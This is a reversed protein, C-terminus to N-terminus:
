KKQETLRVHSSGQKVIPEGYEFLKRDAALPLDGKIKREIAAKLNAQFDAKQNDFQVWQKNSSYDIAQRPKTVTVKYNRNSVKFVQGSYERLSEINENEFTKLSKIKDELKKIQIKNKVITEIIENM